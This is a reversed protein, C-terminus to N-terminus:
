RDPFSLGRALRDPLGEVEGLGGVPEAVVAVPQGLVVGRGSEGVRGRLDEDGRDRGPRAPDAYPRAADHESVVARELHGLLEPHELREVRPADVEPMPRAGPLSARM